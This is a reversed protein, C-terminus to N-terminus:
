SRRNSRRWKSVTMRWSKACRREKKWTTLVIKNNLVQTRRSKLAFLTPTTASNNKSRLNWTANEKSTKNKARLLELSTKEKLKPKLPTPLKANKSNANALSKSNTLKVNCSRRRLSKRAAPKANVKKSLVSPASPTSKLNVILPKRKCRVFAPLKVNRRKRLVANKSLKLLKVNSRPRTIILSRKNRRLSM